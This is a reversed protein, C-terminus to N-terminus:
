SVIGTTTRSVTEASLHKRISLLIDTARKKHDAMLKEQVTQTSIISTDPVSSTRCHLLSPSLKVETLEVTETM